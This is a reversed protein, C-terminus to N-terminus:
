AIGVEYHGRTTWIAERLCEIAEFRTGRLAARVGLCGGTCHDVLVFVTTNGEDILCGTADIAWMRDPRDTGITRDHVQPGRVAVSRQRALLGHGRMIRLVRRMSTRIGRQQRLRAWVKRYGEGVFPSAALVGHVEALLAQDDLTSRPGRKGPVPAAAGAAAKRRQVTACSLKWTRCVRQVGYTKKASPSTAQSM